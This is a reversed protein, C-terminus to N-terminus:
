TLYPRCRVVEYRDSYSPFPLRLTVTKLQEAPGNQVLDQLDFELTDGAEAYTEAVEPYASALDDQMGVSQSGQGPFVFAFTM